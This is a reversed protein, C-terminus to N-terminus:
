GKGDKWRRNKIKGILIVDNKFIDIGYGKFSFGYGFVWGLRYGL